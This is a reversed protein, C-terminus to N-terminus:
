RFLISSETSSTQVCQLVPVWLRACIIVWQGASVCMLVCCLMLLGCSRHCERALQKSKKLPAPTSPCVRHPVAVVVVVRKIKNSQNESYVTVLFSDRGGGTISEAPGGLKNALDTEIQFPCMTRKKGEEVRGVFYMLFPEFTLSSEFSPGIPEWRTKRRPKNGPEPNNGKPNTEEVEGDNNVKRELKKVIELLEDMKRESKLIKITMEAIVRDKREIEVMQTRIQEDRVVVCDNMAKTFEYNSRNNKKIKRELM